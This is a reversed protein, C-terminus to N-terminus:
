RIAELVKQLNDPHAIVFQYRKKIDNLDFNIENGKFDVFAGGAEQVLLTCGAIDWICPYIDVVIDFIGETIMALELGSTCIMRKARLTKIFDPDVLQSADWNGVMTCKSLEKPKMKLQTQLGNKDVKFAGHDKIAFHYEGKLSNYILGIQVQDDAYLSILVCFYEFGITYNTTGDLPDIIFTLEAQKNVGEERIFGIQDPLYGLALYDATLSEIIVKQCELDVETVLDVQSTKQEVAINKGFKSIQIQAAKQATTLMVQLLQQQQALTLM